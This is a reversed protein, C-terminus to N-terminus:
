EVSPDSRVRAIAELGETRDAHIIQIMPPEVSADILSLIVLFENSRFYRDLTERDNWEQILAFTSEDGIQQYCFCSECGPQAEIPERLSAMTRLFVDTQSRQPVLRLNFIEM